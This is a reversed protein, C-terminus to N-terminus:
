GGSGAVFALLVPIGNYAAHLGATAWLSRRRLFLWGLVFAVPLRVLFAFLARGLAEPFTSGGVTLVHVLAFFLASRVVARGPGLGPLWVTLAYGRYFTEEWSPAVVIAVALNALGGPLDHAPPLPSEPTPLVSQLLGGLALTVFLVPLALTAGAALDDTVRRTARWGLDAWRLGAEALFLRILLLPVAATVLASLLTAAPGPGQLIGLVVLPGGVVAGAVLTLPVAAAWVLFPSPLPPERGARRGELAQSGAGALLGLGLLALGVFQLAARALPGQAMFGILAVAAGSLTALWAFLYLGPAARGVLNFLGRGGPEWGGPAPPPPSGGAPTV